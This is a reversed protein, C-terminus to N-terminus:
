NLSAGCGEAAGPVECVFARPNTSILTEGGEGVRSIAEKSGNLHAVSPQLARGERGGQDGPSLPLCYM